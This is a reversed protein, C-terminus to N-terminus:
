VCSRFCSPMHSAARASVRPDPANRMNEACYAMLHDKLLQGPPAVALCIILLQWGTVVSDLSPNNKTQKAIQCFIENRLDEMSQLMYTLLKICHDMAPKNTTRDGMFGTINRFCQVAESQLERDNLQLLSTKIVDKGGKWSTIKETTTRTNFIGKRDYNFYKEAYEIYTVDEVDATLERTAKKDTVKLLLSYASDLQLGGSSSDGADEEGRLAQQMANSIDEARGSSMGSKDGAAEDDEDTITMQKLAALKDAVESQRASDAAESSSETSSTHPDQGSSGETDEGMCAPREWTTENTVINFYYVKSTGSDFKSSWNAAVKSPDADDSSSAGGAAGSSTAGGGSGEFDAPKEWTTENTESNHYYTKGSSPDVVQHPHM